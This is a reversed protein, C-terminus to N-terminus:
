RLRTVEFEEMKKVCYLLSRYRTELDGDEVTVDISAALDNILRDTIRPRISVLLKHKEEYTEADLFALLDPNPTGEVDVDTTSKLSSESIIEENNNINSINNIDNVNDTSNIGIDDQEEGARGLLEFRYRQKVDPYKKRDVESMFMDYPRAYMSFDGYLAQYIVLKERNESHTALGVIQYLRNKFHRYIEGPMPSKREM